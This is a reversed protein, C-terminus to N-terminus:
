RGDVILNTALDDELPANVNLINVHGFFSFTELSPKSTERIAQLLYMVFNAPTHLFPTTSTKSNFSLLTVRHPLLELFNTHELLARHPRSLAFGRATPGQVAPKSSCPLLDYVGTTTTTSCSWRTCNMVPLAM